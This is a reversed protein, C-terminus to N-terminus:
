RARSFVWPRIGLRSRAFINCLMALLTMSTLSAIACGMAGLPPILAINLVLNATLSIWLARSAYREEGSMSLVESAPGGLLMALTGLMYIRFPWVDATYQDGYIGLIPEAFFWGVVMMPVGTLTFARALSTAHAQLLPWNRNLGAEALFPKYQLLAMVRFIAIAEALRALIRITAATAPDALLGTLVIDLNKSLVFGASILALHSSSRLAARIEDGSDRRGRGFALSRIPRPLVLTAVFLSGLLAIVYIISITSTSPRVDTSMVALGGSIMLTPFAINSGLFSLGPRKAGVALSELYKRVMLPGFVALAAMLPLSYPGAVDWVLLVPVGVIGAILSAPYVVRLTVWQAAAFRPSRRVHEPGDAALQRMMTQDLGFSLFVGLISILSVAVSYSGFSEASFARALVVSQALTLALAVMRLGALGVFKRLM